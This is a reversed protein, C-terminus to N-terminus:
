TLISGELSLLHQKIDIGGTYGGLSSDSRVIRHCPVIIAVPNKGLANGVARTAKPKGIRQAIEQYTSLRGFPITTIASLVNQTFPTIGTMDIPLDFENRTGAFYERLQAIAPAVREDDEVPEFGRKRLTRHFAAEGNGRAFGVECVGDDSMAILLPGIPSDMRAYRAIRRNPPTFTPPTLQIVQIPECCKDLLTDTEEYVQLEGRCYNCRATHAKLWTRDLDSLDGIVYGPMAELAIDCPDADERSAEQQLLSVPRSTEHDAHPPKRLPEVGRPGQGDKSSASTSTQGTMTRNERECATELVLAFNEYRKTSAPM